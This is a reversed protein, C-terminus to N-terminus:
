ENFYAGYQRNLHLALPLIEDEIVSNIMWDLPVQSEFSNDGMPSRCFPCKDNGSNLISGYCDICWEHKDSTRCTVFNERVELCIDCTKQTNDM